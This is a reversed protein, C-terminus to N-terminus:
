VARPDLGSLAAGADRISGLMDVTCWIIDPADGTAHAALFKASMVNYDQPEVVIKVGPNEAEYTDIMQKLAVSRGNDTAEPNLFTWMRVTKEEALAGAAPFLGVLLILALLMSLIGLKRKM